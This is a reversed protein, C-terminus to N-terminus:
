DLCKSIIIIVFRVVLAALTSVLPNGKRLPLVSNSFWLYLTKAKDTLTKDTNLANYTTWDGLIGIELWKNLTPQKIEPSVDATLHCIAVKLPAQTQTILPLDKFLLIYNDRWATIIYLVAIMLSINYQKCMTSIANRNVCSYLLPM